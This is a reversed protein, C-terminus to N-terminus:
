EKSAIWSFLIIFYHTSSGLKKFNRKNNKNKKIRIVYNNLQAVTFLFKELQFHFISIKAKSIFNSDFWVVNPINYPNQSKCLKSFIAAIFKFNTHFFNKHLKKETNVWIKCHLFDIVLTEVEYMMKPISSM